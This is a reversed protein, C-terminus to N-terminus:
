FGEIEYDFTFHIKFGDMETTFLCEFLTDAKLVIISDVKLVIISNIQGLSEFHVRGKKSLYVLDGVKFKLM